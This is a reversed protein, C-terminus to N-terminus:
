QAFDLFCDSEAQKGLQKGMPSEQFSCLECALRLLMELRERHLGKKGLSDLHLSLMETVDHGRSLSWPTPNSREVIDAMRILEDVYLPYNSWRPLAKKLGDVDIELNHSNLFTRVEIGNLISSRLNEKRQLLIDAVRFSGIERSARELKNRLLDTNLPDIDHNALLKEFAQTNILYIELDNFMLRQEEFCFANYIFRPHEFLATNTISDYDVDAFLYLFDFTVYPQKQSARYVDEVLVKGEFGEFRVLANKKLWQSLFRKDCLGEVIVTQIKKSRYIALANNLLHSPQKQYKKLTSM